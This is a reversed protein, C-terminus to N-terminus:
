RVEEPDRDVVYEMSGKMDAFLVTVQKRERELAVRETLIKKALHAPTYSDPSSFRPPVAQWIPAITISAGCNDCFKSGAIVKAKCITCVIAFAAGCGRCFRADDRNDCKCTPCQM